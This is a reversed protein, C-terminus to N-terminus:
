ELLLTIVWKLDGTMARSGDLKLTGNDSHPIKSIEDDVYKKNSADNDETPIALGKIKNSNM